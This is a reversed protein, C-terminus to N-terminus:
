KKKERRLRVKGRLSPDKSVAIKRHKLWNESYDMRSRQESFKFNGQTDISETDSDGTFTGDQLRACLEAIQLHTQAANFFSPDSTFHEKVTQHCLSVTPERGRISFNIPVRHEMRRRLRQIEDKSLIRPDLYEPRVNQNDNGGGDYESLAGAGQSTNSADSEEDNADSYKPDSGLDGTNPLQSPDDRSWRGFGDDCQVGEGSIQVLPGFSRRLDGELDIPMYPDIRLRNKISLPHWAGGGGGHSNTPSDWMDVDVKTQNRRQDNWVAHQRHTAIALSLEMMTLPRLTCLLWSFIMKAETLRDHEIRAWIQRYIESLSTPLSDLVQRIAALSSDQAASILDLLLKVLLFMKEARSGLKDIIEQQVARFGPREKILRGVGWKIYQTLDEDLAAEGDLDLIEPTVDCSRLSIDAYPRSTLILSFGSDGSSSNELACQLVDLVNRRHSVDPCEDLGDLVLVINHEGGPLIRRHYHLLTLFFTRLDEFKLPHASSLQDLHKLFACPLSRSTEHYELIQAIISSLVNIDTRRGANRENCAFFLVAQIPYHPRPGSSSDIQQYLFKALVSKGSGPKGLIHLIHPLNGKRVSDYGPRRLVWKFTGAVPDRIESCHQAVSM